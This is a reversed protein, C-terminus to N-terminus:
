RLVPSEAEQSAYQQERPNPVPAAPEKLSWVQSGQLPVLGLNLKKIRDELYKQSYMMALQQKLKKNQDQLANLEQERRRIQKGLEDIQSKQWVYGVGAGGILACLLFAKIAPGFRIAASQYKRNRAM